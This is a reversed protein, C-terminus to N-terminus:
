VLEYRLEELKQQFFQTWYERNFNVKSNCGRCLAVFRESDMDSNARDYYIHHVDLKRGNEEKTKGCLQCTHNDRERIFEKFEKNFELPYDGLAPGGQWNYHNPGTEADRIKQKHEESLEKGKHAKGIKQKIEKTKEEGYMKVYTKGKKESPRGIHSERSKQKSEETHHKGKMGHNSRSNHGHMFRPIGHYKHMPHVKIRGGCGCKCVRDPYYELDKYQEWNEVM